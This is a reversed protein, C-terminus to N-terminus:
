EALAHLPLMSINKSRRKSKIKSLWRRIPEFGMLNKEM